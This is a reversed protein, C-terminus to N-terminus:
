AGRRIRKQLIKQIWSAPLLLFVCIAVKYLIAAGINEQLSIKLYNWSSNKDWSALSAISKLIYIWAIKKKYINADVMQTDRYYTILKILDDFLWDYSASLNNAHRRYLTLSKEIGYVKYERIIHFILDYDSVAYTKSGTLNRIPTYIDLVERRVAISSYSVILPNKSLIYEDQRIMEDQYIHVGGSALLSHLTTESESNIFDMDSYVLGVDPHSQFTRYKEDLSLSVYVDDGELFTIYLSDSSVQSLLFNTNDVIWKNPAHHWARIKEPYKQVYEQIIDWTADDPSDDGILFEWDTLSQSLVSEITEAIYKEHRYTTTIISFKPM